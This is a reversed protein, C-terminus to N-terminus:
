CSEIDEARDFKGLLDTLAPGDDGEGAVGPELVQRSVQVPASRERTEEDVAERAGSEDPLCMTELEGLPARGTLQEFMTYLEACHLDTEVPRRKM